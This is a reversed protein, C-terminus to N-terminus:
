MGLSERDKAYLPSNRSNFKKAAAVASFLTV